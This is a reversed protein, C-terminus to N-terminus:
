LAIETPVEEINHKKAYGTLTKADMFQGRMDKMLPRICCGIASSVCAAKSFISNYHVAGYLAMLDGVSVPAVIKGNTYAM